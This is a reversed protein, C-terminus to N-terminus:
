QLTLKHGKPETWQLKPKAKWTDKKTLTRDFLVQPPNFNKTKVMDKGMNSHPNTLSGMVGSSGFCGNISKKRKDAIYPQHIANMNHSIPNSGVLHSVKTRDIPRGNTVRNFDNNPNPNM